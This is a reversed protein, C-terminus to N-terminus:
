INDESRELKKEGKKKNIIEFYMIVIRPFVLPIATAIYNFYGPLKIAVIIVAAILFMRLPYTESMYRKADKEEKNIARGVCYALILYNLICTLAGLIAGLVVQLSFYGCLAFVGVMLASLVLVGVAMKKVESLLNKDIM